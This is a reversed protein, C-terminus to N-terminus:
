LAAKQWQDKNKGLITKINWYITKYRFAMNYDWEEHEVDRNEKFM